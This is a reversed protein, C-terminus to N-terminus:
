PVVATQTQVEYVKVIVHPHFGEPYTEEELIDINDLSANRYYSRDSCPHFLYHIYM